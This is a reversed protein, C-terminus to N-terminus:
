VKRCVFSNAVPIFAVPYAPLSPNGKETSVVEWGSRTLLDRLSRDSYSSLDTPNKGLEMYDEEAGIRVHASFFLFGDPSVRRHAELFLSLAADPLQHTIVSFMSCVDVDAAFPWDAESTPGEPNYMPNNQDACHFEIDASAAHQQLWEIMERDVDVGIYRGIPIDYTHIASAFRSGCGIDLVTRGALSEWGLRAAMYDLLVKGTLAPSGLDRVEQSNRNFRDPIVLEAM